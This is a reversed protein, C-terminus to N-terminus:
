ALEGDDGRRCEECPGPYSALCTRRRVESFRGIDIRLCSFAFSTNEGIVADPQKAELASISQRLQTVLSDTLSDGASDLASKELAATVAATSIKFTKNMQELIHKHQSDFYTWAPDETFPLEILLRTVYFIINLNHDSEKLLSNESM